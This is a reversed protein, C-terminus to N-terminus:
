FIFIAQPLKFSSFMQMDFPLLKEWKYPNKTLEPKAMISSIAEALFSDFTGFSFLLQSSVTWDIYQVQTMIM